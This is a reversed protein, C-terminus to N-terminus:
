FDKCTNLIESHHAVEGGPSLFEFWNRVVARLPGHGTQAGSKRLSEDEIRLLEVLQKNSMCPIDNHYEVCRQLNYTELDNTVINDFFIAEFLSLDMEADFSDGTKFGSSQLIKELPYFVDTKKKKAVRPLYSEIIRSVWFDASGMGMLHTHLETLGKNFIWADLEDFLDQKTVRPINVDASIDSRPRKTVQM